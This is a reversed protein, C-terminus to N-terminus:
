QVCAGAQQAVQSELYAIRQMGRHDTAAVVQRAFATLFRGNSKMVGDDGAALASALADRREPSLLEARGMFVRAIERPEPRIQLPLAQDVFERPVLYLVRLGEEFWSDRWTEVMARAEKPYLGGGTLLDALASRLSPLDGNLEPRAVPDPGDVLRWGFKGGRNEFLVGKGVGTLRIRGDSTFTPRAPPQFDGTGRYFLMKEQQDGVRLAAADTERAAYYHSDGKGTPYDLDANPLVEIKPWALDTLNGEARPYWETMKGSPFGVHLAVTTPRNSYFYVVPTEMRVRTFLAGKVLAPQRYVFCPLDAPGGLAGWVVARGQADTVSTFTGWEHAVLSSGTGPVVAEAGFLPAAALVALITRGLSM